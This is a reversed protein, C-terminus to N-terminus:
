KMVKFTLPPKFDKPLMQNNIIIKSKLGVQAPLAQLSNYDIQNDNGDVVVWKFGTSYKDMGCESPDKKLKQVIEIDLLKEKPRYITQEVTASICSELFGLVFILEIM